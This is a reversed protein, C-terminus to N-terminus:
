RLYRKRLIRYTVYDLSLYVVTATAAGALFRKM